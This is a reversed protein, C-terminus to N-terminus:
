WNIVVALVSLVIPALILAVLIIGMPRSVAGRRSLGSAFDGMMRIEGEPSYQSVPRDHKPDLYIMHHERSSPHRRPELPDNDM